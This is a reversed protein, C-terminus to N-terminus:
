EAQIGTKFLRDGTDPGKGKEQTKINTGVYQNDSVRGAYCELRNYTNSQVVCGALIVKETYKELESRIECIEKGTNIVGDALVVTKNKIENILSDVSERKPDLLLFTCDLEDAIGSAFWLGSRLLAIVVDPKEFKAIEEAVKKGIVEHAKRLVAGNKGSKSKSIEVAENFTM